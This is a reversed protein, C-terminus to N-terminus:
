GSHQGGEEGLTFEVVFKETSPALRQDKQRQAIRTFVSLPVEQEHEETLVKIETPGQKIVFTCDGQRELDWERISFRGNARKQVVWQVHHDADGHHAIGAAHCLEHAIAQHRESIQINAPVSGPAEFGTLISDDSLQEPDVTVDMVNKPPGLGWTV